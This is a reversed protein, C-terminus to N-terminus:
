KTRKSDFFEYGQFFCSLFQGSAVDSLIPWDLKGEPRFMQSCHCCLAEWKLRNVKDVQVVSDFRVWRRPKVCFDYTMARTKNRQFSDLRKAQIIPWRYWHWVPYEFSLCCSPAQKAAESAAQFVAHHDRSWILPEAGSPFFFAEVAHNRALEVLQQTLVITNRHVCKEPHCLHHVSDKSVGLSVAAAEGEQKRMAILRDTDLLGTHSGSGDTVFVIRVDIGSSLMQAITGGCGLTEDDYHPSIVMASRIGWDEFSCERTARAKRGFWASLHPFGNELDDLNM